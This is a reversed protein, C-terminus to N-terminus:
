AMAYPITLMTLAGLISTLLIYIIIGKERTKM